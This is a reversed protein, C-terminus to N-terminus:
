KKGMTMKTRVAGTLSTWLYIRQLLCEMKQVHLERPVNKAFLHRFLTTTFASASPATLLVKLLILQARANTAPPHIKPIQMSGGKVFLASRREERVAAAM